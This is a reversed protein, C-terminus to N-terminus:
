QIVEDARLLLSQPITFGLAKATKLNIVLEFRTPQEIPLDGPKAGRLIKDVFAAANRYLDRFDPGYSMLGGAEVHARQGYIAPLRTKAALAVIRARETNFTSDELVIVAEMRGAAIRAFAEDYGTAGRVEVLQVDIGLTVGADRTAHWEQVLGPNDKNHLVAARTLRPQQQQLVQLRKGALSVNVISNGTINGGPRSLSTVLGTALPDGAVTLVIPITRTAKKAARAAQSGAVLLIDVKGRVVDAVIQELQDEHGGADRHEIMVDRGPVYGRERLGLEFADINVKIPPAIRVFALRRPAEAQQARVDRVVLGALLVMNRAFARREM